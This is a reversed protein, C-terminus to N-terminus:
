EGRLMEFFERDVIRVVRGVVGVRSDVVLSYGVFLEVIGLVMVWGLEDKVGVDEEEM